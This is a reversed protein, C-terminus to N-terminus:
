TNRDSEVQQYHLDSRPRSQRNNIIVAIAIAVSFTTRVFFTLTTFKIMRFLRRVYIAIDVALAAVYFIDCGLVEVARPQVLHM